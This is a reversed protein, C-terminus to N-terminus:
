KSFDCAFAGSYPQRVGGADECLKECEAIQEHNDAPWFHSPWARCYADKSEYAQRKEALKAAQDMKQAKQSKEEQAEIAVSDWQYIKDQAARANPADPVLLLYRKMERMADFYEEIEGLIVARNFHGEPWWPVIELAKGYLGAAKSFQKGQVAFEAQVKFKRAEEPFQPKPNAARYNAAVDQFPDSADDAFAPVCFSFAFVMMLTQVYKM